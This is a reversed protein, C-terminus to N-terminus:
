FTARGVIKKGRFQRNARKSHANYYPTKNFADDGYQTEKSAIVVSSLKDCSVFANREISKVNAPIRVSKLNICSAFANAPINTLGTGIKLVSIATCNSFAIGGIEKVSNPLNVATLKTCYYFAYDKIVELQSPFTITKLNDCYQFAASGIEKLYSPLKVSTLSRCNSFAKSGIKTVTYTKGENTATDPIVVNGSYRYDDFSVVSVCSDNIIELNVGNCVFTKQAMVNSFTLAAFLGFLLNKKM